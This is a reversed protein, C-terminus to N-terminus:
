RNSREFRAGNVWGTAKEIICLHFLNSRALKVKISSYFKIIYWTYISFHFKVM